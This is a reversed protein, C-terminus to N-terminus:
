EEVERIFRLRRLHTIAFEDKIDKEVGKDFRYIYARGAKQVTVEADRAESVFKVM